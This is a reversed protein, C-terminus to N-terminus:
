EKARAQPSREAARLRVREIATTADAMKAFGMDRIMGISTIQREDLFRDQIPEFEEQKTPASALGTNLFGRIVNLTGRLRDFDRITADSFVAILEDRMAELATWRTIFERHKDLYPQGPIGSGLFARTVLLESTREALDHALENFKVMARYQFDRQQRWRQWREAFWYAIGVGALLQLVAILLPHRLIVDWTPM